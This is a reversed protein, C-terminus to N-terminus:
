LDTVAPQTGRVPLLATYLERVKTNRLALTGYLIEAGAKKDPDQVKENAELRALRAKHFESDVPQGVAQAIAQALLEKNFRAGPGGTREEGWKGTDLAAFWEAIIEVVDANPDGGPGNIATNRINGAKTLGGFIALMTLAKGAEGGTQYVFAAKSALDVYRFGTAETEDKVEAGTPDVWQRDAVAAKTVKGSTATTSVDTM